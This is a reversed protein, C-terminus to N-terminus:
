GNILWQVRRIRLIMLFGRWLGRRKGHWCGGKGGRKVEGAGGELGHPSVSGWGERMMKENGVFFWYAFAGSGIVSYRFVPM